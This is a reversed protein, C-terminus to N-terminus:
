IRKLKLMCVPSFLRTRTYVRVRVVHVLIVSNMRCLKDHRVAFGVTFIEKRRGETCVRNVVLCDNERTRAKVKAEKHSESWARRYSSIVRYGRSTSWKLAAYLSQIRVTVRTYNRAGRLASSEIRAVKSRNQNLNRWRVFEKEDRSVKRADSRGRNRRAETHKIKRERAVFITRTRSQTRCYRSM